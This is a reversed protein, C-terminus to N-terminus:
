EPFPPPVSDCDADVITVKRDLRDFHFNRGRMFMNGLLQSTYPSATMITGCYSPSAPDMPNPAYRLYNRPSWSYDVEGNAGLKFDITPFSDFFSQITPHMNKSRSICMEGDFTQSGGCNTSKARCFTAITQILPGSIAVNFYSFTTGSDLKMSARTNWGVKKFIQKGNVSVSFVSIMYNTNAIYNLTQTKAGKKHRDTRLKGLTFFGGYTGLCLGFGRTVIHGGNYLQDILNPSFRESNSNYYLGMIGNAKQPLFMGTEQTTCGIPMKIPAKIGHSDDENKDMNEGKDGFMIPQLMMDGTLSSGEAYHRYFTCKSQSADCTTCMYNAVRARCKLFVSTDTINLPPNDHTGCSGPSCNCPVATYDSGTDLIVSQRVPPNGVMIHMWYYMTIDDGYIKVMHSDAIKTDQPKKQEDPHNANPVEPVVVASQKRKDIKGEEIPSNVFQVPVEYKEISYGPKQVEEKLQQAKM